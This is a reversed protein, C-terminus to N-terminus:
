SSGANRNKEIEGLTRGNADKWEIRGNASRGLVVGAAASPSGFPYDQAFEYFDGKDVLIGLEVLSNRIERLYNPISEVEQKRAQSGARVVFGKTEDVGRAEIGKSRIYLEKIATPDLSVKDFFNVGLLRLCLLMNELFANADCEDAKSISPGQPLNRNDLEARKAEYAMKLLRAETYEAHATNFNFDKSTFIAAHTWFDKERAHQELRQLVNGAQGVYVRSFLGSEGLGWLVYVGTRSIEPLQRVEPLLVRPFILGLGTWNSKEIIRLGEPEGSPIFIRVNFGKDSNM